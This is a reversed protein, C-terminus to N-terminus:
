DEEHGITEMWDTLGRWVRFPTCRNSELERSSKCCGLFLGLGRSGPATERIRNLLPAAVKSSLDFYEEKLGRTRDIAACKEFMQVATDPILHMLDRFKQGINQARLHM